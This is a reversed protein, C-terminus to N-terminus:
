TLPSNELVGAHVALIRINRLKASGDTTDPGEFGCRLVAAGGSDGTFVHVATLTLPAREAFNGPAFVTAVSHDFDGGLGLECAVQMSGGDADVVSATGRVYWAGRALPMTRVAAMTHPVDVPGRDSGLVVKPLGSGFSSVTGTALSRRLLRGVRIAQLHINSVSVDGASGEAKCQLRAQGGSTGVVPAVDLAFSERDLGHDTSSLRTSSSDAQGPAILRCTVGRTEDTASSFTARVNFKAMVSWRGAGLPLAGATAFSGAGAAVDGPRSGDVIEPVDGAAGVTTSFGTALNRITLRGARVATIKLFRAQADGTAGDTMCDVHVAGGSMDHITAPVAFVAVEPSLTGGSQTFPFLSTHDVRSGAVLRCQVIVGSTITVEIPTKAVVIWNGRSLHLSGLSQFTSGGSVAIPGDEYGSVIEPPPLGPRGREPAANSRHLPGGWAAPGIALAIALTAVATLRGPATRMTASHIGGM